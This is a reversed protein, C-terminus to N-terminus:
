RRPPWPHGYLRSLSLQLNHSIAKMPIQLQDVSPPPAIRNRYIRLTLGREDEGVFSVPIRKVLDFPGMDLIKQITLQPPGFDREEIVLYEIGLTEIFEQGKRVVEPTPDKALNGGVAEALAKGRLVLRRKEPDFKRVYFVFDPHMLGQFFLLDADPQQSLFQAAQEYGSAYPRQYHVAGVGYFITLAVLASAAVRPWQSLLRWVFYVAFFVFPLLWPLAYRPSKSSLITLAAYCGVIWSFFLRLLSGMRDRVAAVIGLLSLILLLPGLTTWLSGPYFTLIDRMSPARSGYYLGVAETAGLRYFKVSFAYWPVVLVASLGLAFYLHKWKLLSWRQELLLYLVFLPLLFIVTQKTLLACASFFAVLYISRVRESKLVDMWCLIAALFFALSPLELMISRELYLVSPLCAFILTSALALEARVSRRVIKYWLAAAVVAFPIVALRGVWHSIGFLLFFFGEVVYFLPPWAGLTVDPYKGYYEYAYQLPWRWPHDHLVDRLFVGNMAHLSEDSYLKVEGTGIGQFCLLAILFLLVFFCTREARQSLEGGRGPQGPEIAM